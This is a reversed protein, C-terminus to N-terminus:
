ALETAFKSIRQVAKALEADSAAYSFRVFGPAGFECGPVGAVHVKALLAECLSTCDKIQVDGHRKGMWARFDPFVYFAGGPVACKVGAIASLGAVIADRRQQYQRRWQPLEIPDKALADLTALQAITTPNSTSHSQLAGMAAILHKPGAAYGIRWGTMAYAKAVGNITVTRNFADNSLSAFSVHQGDYVLKEYIEDAMVAIETGELVAALKRQDDASWVAGTPNSPSNVILMRTRPTIAAKLAEPTLVFGTGSTDVIVPRGGYFRVMEPYSVWYPAPIVVEDGEDILAAVMNFCCHKGGCSVMVEEASYHLANDRKFKEAVAKRLEPLGSAPTYRGVNGGKRLREAAANRIDEPTDFDPEGATLAVVDHGQKALEKARATLALTASPQIRGMRAALRLLSM